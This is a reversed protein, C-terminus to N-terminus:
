SDARYQLRQKKERVDLCVIIAAFAWFPAAIKDYDFYSNLFGHIFYTLLSLFVAMVMYRTSKEISFYILQLARIFILVFVAIWSLMGILGGEALPGLFESHAHGLTAFNTSIVTKEYSLQYPAYQFMYTGPGFGLLPKEKFMRWACSWRNLRELNSPDNKINTASALHKEMNKSNSGVKNRALSMAIDKQFVVAGILCLLVAAYIYSLKIRLLLVIMVGAVALLSVWAARTYSFIVALIFVVAFFAIFARSLASVKLEKGKIFFFVMPPILLAVMASYVGHIWFFPHILRMIADRSFGEMSHRVMIFSIVFVSPVILTWLFKKINAFDYFLRSAFFYFVIIFWCRALLHKFSVLPMTSSFCTILMWLLHFLVAITVPHRIFEKDNFGERIFKLVAVSMLVIILPETPLNMGAGFGLDHVTVSLPVLFVTLYILKDASFVALYGALLVAPLFLVLHQEFLLSFVIAAIFVLGLLYYWALHV